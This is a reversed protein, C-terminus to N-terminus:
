PVVQTMGADRYCTEVVTPRVKLRMDATRKAQALSFLQEVQLKDIYSIKLLWGPVGPGELYFTCFGEDESESRV